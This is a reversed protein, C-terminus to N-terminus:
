FCNCNMLALHSVQIHFSLLCLNSTSNFDTLQHRLSLIIRFCLRMLCCPCWVGRRVPFSAVSVILNWCIGEHFPMWYFRNWFGTDAMSLKVRRLCAAFRNCLETLAPFLSKPAWFRCSQWQIGLYIVALVLLFFYLDKRNNKSWVRSTPPSATFTRWSGIVM